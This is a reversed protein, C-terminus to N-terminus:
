SWTEKCLMRSSAKQKFLSFGKRLSHVVGESVSPHGLLMVEHLSNSVVHALVLVQTPPWAVLSGAGSRCISWYFVM